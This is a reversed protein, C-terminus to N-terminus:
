IEKYIQVTFSPQAAAAPQNFQQKIRRAEAFSKNVDISTQFGKDSEDCWHYFEPLYFKKGDKIGLVKCFAIIRLSHGKNCFPCLMKEKGLEQIM